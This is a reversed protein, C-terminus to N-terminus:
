YNKSIRLANLVVILTLGVDGFIIAEGLSLFGIVALIALSSKVLLSVSINQKVVVMTKKSLDVLYGVKSIDDNTLIIDATEIAIDAGDLGMAIGVNAQALSPSDNVGDGVMVLNGYKKVLEQVKQVKDKPMLNSYYNDIGITNAVKFANDDNDGTLMFTKISKKSLNSITSKTNSRIKDSLSIFGILNNEQAIFVHINSLPIDLHSGIVEMGILEKKGVLYNVGGISGELGLGNISNFEDLESILINNEISYDKFLKAIPHNSNNEISCVIKMLDEVCVGNFTKIDEIVLNGETLTGTKDFSIAKIKSLEEIYEGGKIIIGNKTGATIASVMSVPTSIALACPCSIVLLVLSKYIWEKFSLGFILYPIIAVLIALIIITPTYYKAFKDIFLDIKAKKDESEKILEIIKSFITEDSIKTVKFEFYGEQNITSSYVEDGVSKDVPFSEGTISAQNISSSGKIIVGDIPVKDGPKVIVIDGISLDEVKVEIEYGDKKVCAIDPRLKVLDVMSKKSQDLVFDELYEAVFFLLMLVAGEAFNGLLCAGITSITVLFEIKVEYELLESLGYKIIDFGIILIVLIFFIISILQSSNM